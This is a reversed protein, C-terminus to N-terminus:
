PYFHLTIFQGNNEIQSITQWGAALYSAKISEIVWEPCVKIGVRVPYGSVLAHKLSSYKLVKNIEAYLADFDFNDDAYKQLESPSIPVSDSM